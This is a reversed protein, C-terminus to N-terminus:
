ISGTRVWRVFAVAALAGYVYLVVWAGGWWLPTLVFALGYAVARSVFYLALPTAVAGVIVCLVIGVFRM